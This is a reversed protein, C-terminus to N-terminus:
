YPLISSGLVMELLELRIGYVYNKKKLLMELNSIKYQLKIM